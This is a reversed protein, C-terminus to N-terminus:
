DSRAKAGDRDEQDSRDQISVGDRLAKSTGELVSSWFEVPFLPAVQTAFRGRHDMGRLERHLKGCACSHSLPGSYQLFDGKRQLQPWGQVLGASLFSLNSIFALPHPSDAARLECAFASSRTAERTRQVIAMVEALQWISAPGHQQQGGTKQRSLSSLRLPFSKCWVDLAM